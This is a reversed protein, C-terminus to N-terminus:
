AVNESKGEALSAKLASMLDRVNTPVPVEGERTEPGHGQIKEEIVRRLEESYTDHYAAPDFPRSRQEILAVALDLEESDVEIEPVKLGSPERVDRAYRLQNLVLVNDEWKIAALYERTRLVFKAIAVKNAKCLAERFLVFAKDAGRDPELYYPKAFYITDIQGPDVFALIQVSKTRKPTAKELEEESIVIYKDKEYEYGRVIEDGPVEEEEVKCVKAYRIRSMDTEHLLHFDLGEKDQAATYLRVPINVLGFSLSGSWTPRM